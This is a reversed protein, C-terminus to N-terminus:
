QKEFSPFLVALENFDPPQRYYPNKTNRKKDLHKKLTEKQNFKPGKKVKKSRPDLKNM